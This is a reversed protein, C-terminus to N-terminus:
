FGAIGRDCACAPLVDFLRAKSLLFFFFCFTKQKSFFFLLSCSIDPMAFLCRSGVYYLCFRHEQVFAIETRNHKVEESFETGVCCLLSFIGSHIPNMLGLDCAVFSYNEDKRGSM